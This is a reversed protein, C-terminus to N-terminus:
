EEDNELFKLENELMRLQIRCQSVLEKSRAVLGTVEDINVQENQLRSNISRLEDLAKQYSNYKKSKQAM